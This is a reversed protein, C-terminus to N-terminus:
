KCGCLYREALIAAMAGTGASTIAQRFVKDTCDGAAFVGAIGTEVHSDGIVEVYGNEDLHLFKSFQKTNPLHGIAVFVGACPIEMRSGNFVNEVRVGLVKKDGFIEGVVSNWIPVIKGNGLVRDRMVVSARLTDRRHILYVKSCFNTLFLSEECASDGGGIVAVDKGRFFAGDCTACVSVGRGMFEREGKANLLRPSSGTAVIVAGALYTDNQGFIKKQGASFDVDEVADNVFRAGFREAQQKMRGILEPGEIGEPFGPFNEVENTTTLQGGPQLGNIVLPSLNARAAYIAAALGACGSGIVVVTENM